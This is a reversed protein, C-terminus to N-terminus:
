SITVCRGTRGLLYLSKKGQGALWKAALSGLAGLGGAILWAGHSGSEVEAQAVPLKVVIKGVHKAASFQRLAKGVKGFDYEMVPLPKVQKHMIMKSVREFSSKLEQLPMGVNRLM